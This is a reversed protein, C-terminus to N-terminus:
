QHRGNDPELERDELVAQWMEETIQKILGYHFGRRGLFGGLKARFSEESLRSLQRAKKQAAQRAATEEDVTELAADIIDRSVGKQQLEQRLAFQSRPKFTERQDVWYRAFAEDNLLDVATLRDIVPQIIDDTFGKKRLGRRIEAASRPRYNLLRLAAQRAQEAAEKQEIQEIDSLSLEQGIKLGHAAVATVGLAFKGNLFISIRNKNKKQLELATIKGM